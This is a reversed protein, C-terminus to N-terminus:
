GNDSSRQANVLEQYMAEKEANFKDYDVGFYKAILQDREKASIQIAESKLTEPNWEGIFKGEMELFELFSQVIVHAIEQAKLKEHEPYNNSM